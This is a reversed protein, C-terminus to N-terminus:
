SRRHADCLCTVYDPLLTESHELIKGTADRRRWGWRTRGGFRVSFIEEVPGKVPAAFAAKRKSGYM